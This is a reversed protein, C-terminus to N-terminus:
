TEADGLLREPANNDIDFFQKPTYGTFLKYDKVLHQYDHYELHMAIALWDKEPYRNKMRFAKDFRALQLFLKPSLGIWENFKRDLQRRSLCAARALKDVSFGHDKQLWERAVQEVPHSVSKRKRILRQLYAEVNHVMEAYGNANSLQENVLDAEKGFIDSAGTYIDTLEIAPIGTLFHMSGPQFIVQFGLTAHKPYRHIVKTHPGMFIAGSYGTTAGEGTPGVREPDRAMFQLCHEPRPPYAKGPIKIHSPFSFDIIRYLRIHDALSPSPKIENILM